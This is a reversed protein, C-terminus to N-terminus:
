MAEVVQAQDALILLRRLYSAVETLEAVNAPAYIWATATETAIWCLSLVHPNETTTAKYSAANRCVRIRRRQEHEEAPIAGLFTVIDDPESDRRRSMEFTAEPQHATM